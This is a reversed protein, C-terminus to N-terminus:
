KSKSVRKKLGEPKVKGAKLAKIYAGTLKIDKKIQAPTRDQGGIGTEDLDYYPNKHKM